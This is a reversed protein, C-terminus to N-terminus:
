PTALSSGNGIHTDRQHRKQPLMLIAVIEAEPKSRLLALGERHQQIRWEDTVAQTEGRM